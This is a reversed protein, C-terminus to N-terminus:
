WRRSPARAMVAWGRRDLSEQGIGRRPDVMPQFEELCRVAIAAARRRRLRAGIRDREGEECRDNTLVRDVIGGDILADSAACVFACARGRGEDDGTRRSRM